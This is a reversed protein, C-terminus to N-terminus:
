HHLKHQFYDYVRQSHPFQLIRRPIMKKGRALWKFPRNSMKMKHYFVYLAVVFASYGVCENM